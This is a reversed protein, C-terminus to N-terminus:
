AVVLPITFVGTRLSKSSHTTNRVELRYNGAVLTPVLVSISRAQNTRVREAKTEAGSAQNIFFLGEEPLNDYIKLQNGKIELTGGPTLKENQTDSGWDYTEIIVPDNKPRDAKRLVVDNIANAIMPKLKISIVLTHRDPSFTDDINEFVGSIDFRTSIFEDSYVEGESIYDRITLWYNEISAKLETPKLISGPGTVQQILHENNRSTVEIPRAVQDDPDDKTLENSYLAYKLM